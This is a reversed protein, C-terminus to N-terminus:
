NNIQFQMSVILFKTFGVCGGGGEGLDGFYYNYTFTINWKM